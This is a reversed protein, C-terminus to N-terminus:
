CSLFQRVHFVNKIDSNISISKRAKLFTYKTQKATFRVKIPRCGNGHQKGLRHVSDIEDPNFKLCALDSIQNIKQLDNKLLESNYLM